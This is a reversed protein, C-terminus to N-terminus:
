WKVLVYVILVVFINVSWLNLVWKCVGLLMFFVSFVYGSEIVVRDGLIM